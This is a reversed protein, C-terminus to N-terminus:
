GQRASTPARNTMWRADILQLSRAQAQARRLSPRRTELRGQRDMPVMPVVGKPAISRAYCRLGCSSKSAARGEAPLAARNRVAQLRGPERGAAIDARARRRAIAM